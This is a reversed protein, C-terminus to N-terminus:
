DRPPNLRQKPKRGKLGSILVVIGSLCVAAGVVAYATGDQDTLGFGRAIPAVWAMGIMLMGGVICTAALCAVRLEGRM